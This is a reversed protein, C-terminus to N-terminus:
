LVATPTPPLTEFSRLPRKLAVVKLLVKEPPSALPTLIPTTPPLGAVEPRSRKMVVNRLPSPVGIEGPEIAGPESVEAEMALPTVSTALKAFVKGTLAPPLAVTEWVAALEQLVRIEGPPPVGEKVTSVPRSGIPCAELEM